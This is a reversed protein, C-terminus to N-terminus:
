CRIKREESCLYDSLLLLPSCIYEIKCGGDSEPPPFWGGRRWVTNECQFIFFFSVSSSPFLCTACCTELRPRNEPTPSDRPAMPTESLRRTMRVTQTEKEREGLNRELFLVLKKQKTKNLFLHRSKDKKILFCLEFRM